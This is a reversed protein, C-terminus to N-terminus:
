FYWTALIHFAILAPLPWVALVHLWFMTRAGQRGVGAAALSGFISTALFSLSLALNLGTGLRLGTHLVLLLLALAAILGHLLRWVAFEGRRWRKFRKRLSLVLTGLTAGLLTFGTLRRLDGDRQLADLFGADAVSRAPPLAPGAVIALALVVVAAAAALLAPQARPEAPALAGAAADPEPDLLEALLPRCAGCVTSAGTRRAIAEVSECGAQLAVDLEGRTVGLCNCVVRARPWEAVPLARSGPFLNGTKQFRRLQWPWVPRRQRILDQVVGLEEWPGITTAAIIQGARLKLQRYSADRTWTVRRALAATDGIAWIDLDVLRLRTAPVHRGFRASRGAFLEALAHAMEQTPGAQGYVTRGASACEGIAWIRPDSTHLRDNVVIGGGRFAVALGAERALRDRPRVGAAVVVLDTTLPMDKGALDLALGYRRAEIRVTAAGLMPQIGAARVRTELYTGADPGFQRNLLHPAHQLLVVALGLRRLAEAAEIGLLGGGLVAARKADSARVRLAELDEITRYVFVGDSEAGEIRPVVPLSGTALVLRDYGISEGQATLVTRAERDISVVTTSLLTRIGRDQGWGPTALALTGLDGPATAGGEPRGADPLPSDLWESLRVRNYAPCAEQGIVTIDYRDSAGLATLREIFRYAAIGFGIVVLRERGGPPPSGSATM